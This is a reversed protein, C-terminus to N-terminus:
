VMVGETAFQAIFTDFPYSSYDPLIKGYEDLELRYVMRDAWDIEYIYDYDPTAYWAVSLGYGTEKDWDNGIIHSIFIRNAYAEDHWRGNARAIALAITREQDEGGWHSYLYLTEGGEHSRMGVVHRDGM